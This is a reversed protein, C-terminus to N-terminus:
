ASWKHRDNLAAVEADSIPDDAPLRTASKTTRQKERLSKIRAELEAILRECLRDDTERNFRPVNLQIALDDIFISVELDAADSRPLLIM